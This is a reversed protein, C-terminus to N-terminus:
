RSLSHLSHTSDKCASKDLLRHLRHVSCRHRHCVLVQSIQSLSCCCFCNSCNFLVITTSFTLLVEIRDTTSQQLYYKTVPARELLFKYCAASVVIVLICAGFFIQTMLKNREQQTYSAPISFFIIIQMASILIGALGNGSMVAGGFRPHFQGAQQEM